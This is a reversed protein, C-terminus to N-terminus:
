GAGTAALMEPPQSRLLFRRLKGTPTRPLAEVFTVSRPVKHAALHSRALEALEDGILPGAVVGPAPVVFAHLRTAGFGDAVSAVAVESVSPHLSLLEEIEQPAVTIGGVMELDDARGHHYLFGDEDMSALDGTRLWGGDLAEATAEPRGLYELLVTPGRVWLMGVAGAPLDTGDKGRVAVEYPPLARGVAGGRTQELTGAVFAQGVETSGLSDLLPCGLLAAAREALSTTLREGASVAVRLSALEAPPPSARILNAYFTPVAFLVTVAHHAVLATIEHPAPRGPHVIARAGSLLPFFLSNGLGYAFFMKSVSLVVDAERLRLGQEAFAAAYVAPDGHRHVAARPVGTTGSTYQAYAPDSAEVQAPPLPAASALSATLSGARVVIRGAFRDALEDTCIVARAGCDTALFRHDAAPLVPNVPVALGGLRVAGLFAWAMEVGDPLALLVADGQRVGLAALLGATRAGGDHIEDHTYTRDGVGLAPRHGHRRAAARQQLTGALNV